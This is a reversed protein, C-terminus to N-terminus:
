KRPLLCQSESFSVVAQALVAEGRGNVITAEATVVGASVDAVIGSIEVTDGVMVFARFRCRVSQVNSAGGAWESAVTSFMGMTLMGHVIRGPLGAARAAAEDLHIPNRDGSSEAYRDVKDATLVITRPSLVDGVAVAASVPRGIGHPEHV